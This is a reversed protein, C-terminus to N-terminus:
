ARRRRSPSTWGRVSNGFARRAGNCGRDRGSVRNTDGRHPGLQGGRLRAHDRRRQVQESAVADTAGRQLHDGVLDAHGLGGDVVLEVGLVLDDEGGGLRLESPEIGHDTGGLALGRPRPRAVREQDADDVEGDVAAAGHAGDEAIGHDDPEEGVVLLVAVDHMAEPLEEDSVVGTGLRPHPRIDLDEDVFMSWVSLTKLRESAYTDVLFSYDM